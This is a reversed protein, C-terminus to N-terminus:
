RDSERLRKVKKSAVAIDPEVIIDCDLCVSDKILCSQCVWRKCLKCMGVNSKTLPVGCCACKYTISKM